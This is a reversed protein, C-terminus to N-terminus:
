SAATAHATEARPAPATALLTDLFRLVACVSEHRWLTLAQDFGTGNRLQSALREAVPAFQRRQARLLDGPDAGARSLLALKLLLESRVDRPHGVPQCLWGQAARRGEPTAHLRSRPPGLSTVQRDEAMILGLRELRQAARYVVAKRVHWVMGVSGDPALLAALAFGHAPEQSVLCLVLWEALSLGPGQRRPM